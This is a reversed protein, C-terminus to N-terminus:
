PRRRKRPSGVHLPSWSPPDSAPFSLISSEEVRDKATAPRQRPPPTDGRAEKEIPRPPSKKRQRM